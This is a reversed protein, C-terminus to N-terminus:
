DGSTRVKEGALYFSIGTGLLFVFTVLSLLLPNWSFIAVVIMQRGFLPMPYPMM